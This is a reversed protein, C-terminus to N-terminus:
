KGEKPSSTGLDGELPGCTSGSNVITGEETLTGPGVPLANKAAPDQANKTPASPRSRGASPMTM